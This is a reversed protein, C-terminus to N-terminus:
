DPLDSFRVKPERLTGSIEFPITKTNTREFYLEVAESLQPNQALLEPQLIVSGDFYLSRNRWLAATQVTGAFAANLHTGVAWGESLQLVGSSFSVDATVEDFALESRAFVTQRLTTEFDRIRTGGTLRISDLHGPRFSARGSFSVRGNLKRDIGRGIMEADAFHMHSIQFNEIDIKGTNGLNNLTVLAEVSGGFAVGSVGIQEVPFAAQFSLLLSDLPISIDQFDNVLSIRYLRIKLPHVYRIDDITCEYGPLGSEIMAAAWGSIRERPLFIVLLLGALCFVFLLFLLFLFLKKIM